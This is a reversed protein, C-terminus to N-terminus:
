LTMRPQDPFGTPPSNCFFGPGRPMLLEVRYFLRLRIGCVEGAAAGWVVREACAASGRGCVPWIGM